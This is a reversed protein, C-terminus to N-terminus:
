RLEVSGSVEVRLEQTGSELVPPPVAAAEAMAMGRVAYRRPEPAQRGTNVDVDVIRYDAKGFADAIRKARARFDAIARDILQDEAAQQRSPSVEYGVTRVLLRAQLRGILASLAEKDASELRLAQTVRWGDVRNDRYVPHTQYELTQMKVASDTRAQELAWGIRGNVDAALASTDQGEAQAFMEAILLDNEVAQSATTTLHVRDYTPPEAAGAPLGALMFLTTFILSRM